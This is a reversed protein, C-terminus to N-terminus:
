GNELILENCFKETKYWDSVYMIAFPFKKGGNKLIEKTNLDQSTFKLVM